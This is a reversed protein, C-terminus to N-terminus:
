KIEYLSCFLSYLSAILVLPSYWVLSFFTFTPGPATPGAKKMRKRAPGTKVEFSPQRFNSCEFHANIFCFFATLWSIYAQTANIIKSCGTYQTQPDKYSTLGCKQPPRPSVSLHSLGVSILASFRSHISLPHSRLLIPLPYCVSLYFIVKM